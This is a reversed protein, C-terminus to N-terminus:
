SVAELARRVFDRVREFEVISPIGFQAMHPKGGGKFGLEAAVRRALDDAKVGREKIVSDSAVILCVPKEVGSQCVLAVGLGLKGRLADGYSRLANVDPAEVTTAVFRVGHADVASALAESAGSEARKSESKKREKQLAENEEVLTRVRKEVEHPAVRLLAAVAVWDDMARRALELAGEGTLAEVRRVGAAVATEQRVFFAGIEGTRRVHTGGCLEKSFDEISVVRVVDGYKEGFLAMAGSALADKYALNATTVALDGIVTENVIREIEALEEPKVPQFHHFDFRLRNPAVLSGAQAVHTGLVKRLAAHLLHTATHNRMTQYRRPRDVHLEVSADKKLRDLLAERSEDNLKVLHAILEGARYTDVVDGARTARGADGVQGGGEPYFVTKDTTIEVFTGEGARAVRSPTADAVSAVEARTDLSDYGVFDTRKIKPAIVSASVSDPGVNLARETIEVVPFKSAKRARDKQKAMAKEFDRMNVDLGRDQAMERTLEPPFGFTDYLQFVDAGPITKIKKAADFLTELRGMGQELTDQFRAEEGTVVQKIFEVKQAIEPYRGGMSTVVANVGRALFPERVGFPHMKTLARRLLRRLVYGRGENSPTINEAIAFTLARVHDSAANVALAAKKVDTGKPLAAAIARRIPLFEDTHFNDEVDQLIFAVRELGLGTDIGPKPLPDYIGKENLFFQPFVLNWYEIYRDSDDQGPGGDPGERGTDFHMESSPGCVGTDGVPGWFNDKKGLRKIRKKPFGVHKSWLEFAEDDDEFITVWIRDKDLKWVEISLEWAWEIAEKKFYDGFSFNGLMEFFTHHRLTRGVNELDSQKGGARLCKQCSAARPYPAKAPDSYYAKFPVMGAATFLLTPDEPLLRASPVLTHGRSEFFSLYDEVLRSVAYRNKTESVM